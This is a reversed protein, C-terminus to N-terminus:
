GTVASQPVPIECALMPPRQRNLGLVEVEVLM